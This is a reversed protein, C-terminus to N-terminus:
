RKSNIGTVPCSAGYGKMSAQIIHVIRIASIGLILIMFFVLLYELKSKKKKLNEM